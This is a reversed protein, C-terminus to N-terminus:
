SCLSNRSTQVFKILAAQFTCRKINALHLFPTDSIHHAVWLPVRNDELVIAMQAALPPVQTQVLQKVLM